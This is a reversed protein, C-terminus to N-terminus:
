EGRCVKELLTLGKEEIEKRDIFNAIAIVPAKILGALENGLEKSTFLLDCPESAATGMDATAVDAELGHRKLVEEIKMKLIMSSGVGFGCVVLIRAKAM